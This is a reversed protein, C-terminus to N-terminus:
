EEPEAASAGAGRAKKEMLNTSHGPDLRAAPNIHLMAHNVATVAEAAGTAILKFKAPYTVIDGAGFIGPVGSAMTLPDVVISNRELTLGWEALPGVKGAFGIAIILEQAPLVTREGSRTQHVHVERLRDDGRLEAVEYFPYHLNVTSTELDRVSKEHARFKSRHVISVQRALPELTLAWDVASDGGGVVVVDKDRFQDLGRVFYHVGRGEFETVGPASLRKPEFGGLGACVVVTRTWHRDRGTTLRFLGDDPLHELAQVEEGLCAVAGTSLGQEVAGKVYDKALIKPFGAVDYIYKEPYVAILQGGLEELIDIIKTRLGRMGAYFAAFLGVPGGGIVTVDYIDRTDTM